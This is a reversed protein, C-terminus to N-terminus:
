HTYQCLGPRYENNVLGEFLEFFPSVKATSLREPIYLFTFFISSMWKGDTYFNCGHKATPKNRQLTM